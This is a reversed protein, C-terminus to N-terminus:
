LVESSPGEYLDGHASSRRMACTERALDVAEVMREASRTQYLGSQSPGGM